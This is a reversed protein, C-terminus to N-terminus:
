QPAGQSRLWERNAPTDKLPRGQWMLKGSNQRDFVSPPITLEGLGNVDYGSDGLAQRQSQYQQALMRRVIALKNQAVDPTDSLQPFMKRYKEEDEKRLVGGEMFRGFSQAATRMRADVTQATTDYPNAQGVRGAAPGFIAANKVLADEVEPLMRAVSKGENVALVSAPPLQRGNVGLGALPTPPKAMGGAPKSGAPLPTFGNVNGSADLNPIVYSSVPKPNANDYFQKREDRGLAPMFDAQAGEPKMGGSRWQNFAQILPSGTGVQQPAMQPGQTGRPLGGPMMSSRGFLPTPEGTMEDPSIPVGYESDAQRRQRGEENMKLQMLLNQMEAQKKNQAYQIFSQPIAGISDAMIKNNSADIMDNQRRNNEYVRGYMEPNFNLAM